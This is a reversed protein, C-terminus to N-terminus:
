EALLKNNKLLEKYQKLKAEPLRVHTKMPKDRDGWNQAVARRTGFDILELSVPYGYEEGIEKAFALIKDWGDGIEEISKLDIQEEVLHGDRVLDAMHQEIKKVCDQMYQADREGETANYRLNQAVVSLRFWSESISKPKEEAILVTALFIQSLLIQTITKMIKAVYLAHV